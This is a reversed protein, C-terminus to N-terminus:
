LMSMKSYFNTSAGISNEKNDEIEMLENREEYKMYSGVTNSNNHFISSFDVDFFKKEKEEKKENEKILDKYYKNVLNNEEIYNKCEEGCLSHALESIKGKSPFSIKKAIEDFTTVEIPKQSFAILKEKSNSQKIQLRHNVDDKILIFPLHLKNVTLSSFGNKNREVLNLQSQIESLKSIMTLQKAKIESELNSIQEKAKDNTIKNANLYTISNNEKHVLGISAMVNIADYVRRQINKFTIPINTTSNLMNLIHNTVEVSTTTSKAKIFKKVEHSISILSNPSFSNKLIIEKKKLGTNIKIIIKRHSLIAKKRRKTKKVMFIKPKDEITSEEM